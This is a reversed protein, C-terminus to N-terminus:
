RKKYFAGTYKVFAILTILGVIFIGIFISSVITPVPHSFVSITYYNDFYKSIDLMLPFAYGRVTNLFETVESSDTDIHFLMQGYANIFYYDFFTICLLVLSIVLSLFNKKCFSSILAFLVGFLLAALCTLFVFLLLAQWLKINLSSYCFDSISKLPAAADYLCGTFYYAIFNVAAFVIMVAFSSIAAAALKSVFVTRTGFFSARIVCDMKNESERTFVNATLLLILIMAPVTYYFGTLTTKWDNSAILWPQSYTSYKEAIKENLRSLYTYGRTEYFHANEEAQRVINEQTNKYSIMYSIDRMAYDAVIFSVDIGLVNGNDDYSNIDKTNLMDSIESHSQETLIGGYEAYFEREKDVFAKNYSYIRLIPFVALGILVIIVPVLYKYSWIKRIEFGILRIM